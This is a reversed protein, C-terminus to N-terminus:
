RKRHPHLDIAPTKHEYVLDMQKVIELRHRDVQMLRRNGRHDATMRVLRLDLPAVAHEVDIGATGTRTAELQRHGDGPQTDGSIAEFGPDNFQHLERM